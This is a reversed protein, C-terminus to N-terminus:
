RDPIRVILVPSKAHELVERSVSGMLFRLVGTRGHSGMGILDAGLEDAIKLIQGAPDGEVIFQRHSTLGQRALEANVPAFVREAELRRESEHRRKRDPEILARAPLFAELKRVYLLSIEAGEADVLHGLRRAVELSYESGDVPLL